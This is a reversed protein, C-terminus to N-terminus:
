FEPFRFYLFFGGGGWGVKVGGGRNQERRTDEPANHVEQRRGRKILPPLHVRVRGRQPPQTDHRDGNHPNAITDLSTTSGFIRHIFGLTFPIFGLARYKWAIVTSPSAITTMPPFSSWLRKVSTCTKLLSRRLEWHVCGLRLPAHGLGREACVILTTPELINMKPPWRSLSFNLSM